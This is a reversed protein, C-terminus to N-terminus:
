LVEGPPHRHVDLPCLQAIAHGARRPRFIVADEPHVVVVGPDVPPDSFTIGLDSRPDGRHQGGPVRWAVLAEHDAPILRGTAPPEHEGEVRGVEGFVDLPFDGHTAPDIGRRLHADLLDALELPDGRRAAVPEDWAM